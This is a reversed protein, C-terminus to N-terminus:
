RPPKAPANVPAQSAPQAKPAAPAPVAAPAPAVAGELISGTAHRSSAYALFLSTLFFAVALGGTVKTLFNGAGGAGFVTQSSGGFVAGIDAGRGHQLLVVICLAVCVLVHVAVVASIM